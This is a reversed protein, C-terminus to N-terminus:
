NQFFNLHDFDSGRLNEGGLLLIGGWLFKGDEWQPPNAAGGGGGGRGM